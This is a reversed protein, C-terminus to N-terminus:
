GRSELQCSSFAAARFSRNATLDEARALLVPLAKHGPPDLQVLLGRLVLQVRTGQLEPQDPTEKQVKHALPVKRDLRVM